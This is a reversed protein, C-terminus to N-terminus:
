GAIEKLISDLKTDIQLASRRALDYLEDAHPKLGLYEPHWVNTKALTNSDSDQITVLTDNTFNKEVLVRGNTLEAVCRGEELLRQWEWKVTGERTRATLMVIISMLEQEELM